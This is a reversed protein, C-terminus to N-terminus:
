QYITEAVITPAPLWNPPLMGLRALLEWVLLVSVPIIWGLLRDAIYIRGGNERPKPTLEATTGKWVLRRHQETTSM